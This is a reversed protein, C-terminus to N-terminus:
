KGADCRNPHRTNVGGRGGRRGDVAFSWVSGVLWDDLLWRQFSGEDWGHWARPCGRTGPRSIMTRQGHPPTRHRCRLLAGSSGRARSTRSHRSDSRSGTIRRSASCQAHVMLRQPVASRALAVVPWRRSTCCGPPCLLIQVVEARVLVFGRAGSGCRGSEVRVVPRWGAGPLWRESLGPFIPWFCRRHARRRGGVTSAMSPLWSRVRADRPQSVTSRRGPPARRGHASAQHDACV